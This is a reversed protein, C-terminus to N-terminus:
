VPKRQWAGAKSFHRLVFPMALFAIVMVLLSQRLSEDLLPALVLTLALPERPECNDTM